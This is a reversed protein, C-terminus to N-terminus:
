YSVQLITHLDINDCVQYRRITQGAEKELSQITDLFRICFFSIPITFKCLLNIGRLVLVHITLM